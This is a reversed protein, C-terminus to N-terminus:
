KPELQIIPLIMEELSVGGHQFSDKYYNLYHHYSTPYVFYFDEKAILYNTSIRRAPLKYTSPQPVIIAYKSDCKINKGFKYRLNTSTERDGIVKVGRLSRISGHDSTIIVTNGLEAVRQLIQLLVSHEFWSRTLSRFAAEDPAIEKLVESDSRSHALFDMFNVVIALLPLQALSDINRHVARIHKTETVKIYKFEYNLNIKKLQEKFLIEEYRNLSFEDDNGEAWLEPFTAEIESPFLGSFIANRSYPTATPLISYYFNKTIRFHSHLVSEMMLWQDLRLNDMIIFIVKQQQEVLPKVYNAVLDVSLTPREGKNIWLPYNQEIFRAFGANVERKQDELIQRLGIQPHSDLELDWETLKIYMQIWEQWSLPNRLTESIENFEITYERSIRNQEIKKTELVKKCALLIQSPNVPKTLYNDIKAGIAQEMISEEENKTIMIVPLFPNIEKIINLATLGDMGNLMEDLLIIDVPQNKILQIADEANTVPVVDYGRQQLFIIHSRLLEIEDDVWIIKGKSIAM